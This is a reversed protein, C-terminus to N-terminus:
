EGELDIYRKNCILNSEICYVYVYALHVEASM